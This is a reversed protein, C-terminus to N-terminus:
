YVMYQMASEEPGSQLSLVTSYLTYVRDLVMGLATLTEFTDTKRFHPRPNIHGSKSMVRGCHVNTFTVMKKGRVHLLIYSHPNKKNANTMAVIKNTSADTKTVGFFAQGPSADNM